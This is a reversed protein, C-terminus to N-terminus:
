LYLRYQADNKVTGRLERRTQPNKIKIVQGPAGDELVEVKLSIMLSGDKHFADALQGRKLIPKLRVSRPYIFQGQPVNEVLEIEETSTPLEEMWERLQLVDRKAYDIENQSLVTGRTLPRAAVIVDKWLKAYVVVQFPGLTQKESRWEFKLIM